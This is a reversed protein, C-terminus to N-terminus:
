QGLLPLSDRGLVIRADVSTTPNLGSVSAINPNLGLAQGIQKALEDPMNYNILVTQSYDGRDADGISVVQWGQAQLLDRTRAAMGPQGTGNLVEIEIRSSDNQAVGDAGSSQAAPPTFFTNVAARVRARDPLLIWAGEASYTEEGYRSDLVLQRIERPPNENIGAALELQASLPINTAVSNGLTYLLRPANALLTPIMQASRVRDFLARLVDQQRRSRGYDDDVNRTRAYKLATEGDLHQPGAELHFTQYGYDVTPYKEDHITKPVNIDVGGILDVLDVFGNFNVRVFYPVPQGIFSGVTDMVLQEGGGPYGSEEGLGYAVNIKTTLNFGPIPVWLDRPLSLMGATHSAPDLTLLILTDTRLAGAEDPREDTGMLLVNVPTPRPQAAAADAPASAAPDGQSMTVTPEGGAPESAAAVQQEMLETPLASLIRDHSWDFLLMGAWMALGLVAVCYVLTLVAATTPKKPLPSTRGKLDYPSQNRM